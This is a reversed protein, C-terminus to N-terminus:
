KCSKTVLICSEPLLAFLIEGTLAFDETFNVSMKYEQTHSDSCPLPQVSIDINGNIEQNGNSHLTISSNASAYYVSLKISVAPGSTGRDCTDVNQLRIVPTPQTTEPDRQCSLM